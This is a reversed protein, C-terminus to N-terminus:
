RPDNTIRIETAATIPRPQMTLVYTNHLRYCKQKANNM